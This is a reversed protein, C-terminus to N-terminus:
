RVIQVAPHSAIANPDTIQAGDPSLQSARFGLTFAGVEMPFCSALRDPDGSIMAQCQRVADYYAQKHTRSAYLYALNQAIYGSMNLRKMKAILASTIADPVFKYEYIGRSSVAFHRTVNGQTEDVLADIIIANIMDSYAPFYGIENSFIGSHIHYVSVYEEHRLIEFLLERDMRVTDRTEAYGIELWLCRSPIFAFAEELESQAALQVLEAEGGTECLNRVALRYSTDVNVQLRHSARWEFRDGAQQIYAPLAPPAPEAPAINEARAPTLGIILLLFFILSHANAPM